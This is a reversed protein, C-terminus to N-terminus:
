TVNQEGEQGQKGSYNSKEKKNKTWWVVLQSKSISNIM